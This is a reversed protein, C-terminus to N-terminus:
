EKPLLKVIREWNKLDDELTINSDIRFGKALRQKTAWKKGQKTVLTRRTTTNTGECEIAFCLDHLGPIVFKLKDWDMMARMRATSGDRDEIDAQNGTQDDRYVIDTPAVNLVYKACNNWKRTFSQFENVCEQYENIKFTTRPMRDEGLLGIRILKALGVLSDCGVARYGEKKFYERLEKLDGYTIPLYAIDGLGLGTISQWGGKEDDGETPTMVYAVKGFQQEYKLMDGILTTKGSGFMGGVYIAWGLDKKDLSFPKLM